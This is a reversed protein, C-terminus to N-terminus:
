VLDCVFCLCNCKLDLDVDICGWTYEYTASMCFLRFTTSSYFWNHLPTLRWCVIRCCVLFQRQAINQVSFACVSKHVCLHLLVCGILMLMHRQPIINWNAKANRQFSFCAFVQARTFAIFGAKWNTYHYLETNTVTYICRLCKLVSDITHIIYLAIIQM